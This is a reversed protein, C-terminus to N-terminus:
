RWHAIRLALNSSSIKQPSRAPAGSIKHVFFSSLVIAQNRITLTLYDSDDSGHGDVILVHCDQVGDQNLETNRLVRILDDTRNDGMLAMETCPRFGDPTV